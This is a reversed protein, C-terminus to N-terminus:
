MLKSQINSFIEALKKDGRLHKSTILDHENVGFEVFVKDMLFFRLVFKKGEEPIFEKDDEIVKYDDSKSIEEMRYVVKSILEKEVNREEFMDKYIKNFHNLFYDGEFFKFMKEKYEKFTLNFSEKSMTYIKEVCTGIVQDKYELTYFVIRAYDMPSSVFQRRFSQSKKIYDELKPRCIELFYKISGISKGFSAEEVGSTAKHSLSTLKELNFLLYIMSLAISYQIISKTM